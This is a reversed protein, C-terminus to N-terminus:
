KKITAIADRLPNSGSNGGSTEELGPHAAHFKEHSRYGEPGDVSIRRIFGNEIPRVEVTKSCYDRGGESAGIAQVAPISSLKSSKGM